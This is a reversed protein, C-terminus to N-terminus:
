MELFFPWALATLAILWAAATSALSVVIIPVLDPKM